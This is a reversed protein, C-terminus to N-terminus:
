PRVECMGTNLRILSFGEESHESGVNGVMIYLYAKWDELNWIALCREEKLDNGEVMLRVMVVVDRLIATVSNTGRGKFCSASVWFVKVVVMKGAKWDIKVAAGPDLSLRRPFM